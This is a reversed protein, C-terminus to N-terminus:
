SLLCHSGKGSQIKPTDVAFITIEAKDSVDPLHNIYILFLFLRLVTGQTGRRIQCDGLKSIM